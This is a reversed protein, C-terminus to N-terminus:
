AWAIGRAANLVRAVLQKCLNRVLFILVPTMTACSQDHPATSGMSCLSSRLFMFSPVQNCHSSRVKCVPKFGFYSYYRVLREHWADAAAATPLVSM